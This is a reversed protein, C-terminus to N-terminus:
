QRWRPDGIGNIKLTVDSITFNGTAASTFGPNVTTPTGTDYKANSTASGSLYTPANFYNNQIFNAPVIITSAQNTHIGGSNAVINKSFYIEHRALRIYLLRNSPGNSMGNLTNTNINIISTIAPFNTSGGADMRFFDRAAASAYVTNNIFNFTKAVGNRFDIFDGGNAEINNIINGRFSISEVLAAVNIYVLGKVYNKIACNEVVLNGYANTSAQDYIITQNGNLAGTGDIELDKLDLGANATLRIVMGKIIPKQSPRAGKIAISKSVVVDANVTYTGPFLAFVDGSNANTLLAALDDTPYVPTAGGLDLLTTFTVTGRVKNGNLLTATYLTESALGTITAQGAAIEAATITKTINGPSLTISTAIQGAPWKLIVSNFTLGAPDVPEFIQESDTRVTAIVYKSDDVGEGVAKVRISYQTDGSLGSVTYPVQLYTIDNITRFPAGTFEANEFVEVTYTKANNVANWNLRVGTRNVVAASLGTPSFARDVQLETIEEMMNDKCSSLGLITILFLISIYLKNRKM